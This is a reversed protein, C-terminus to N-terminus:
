NINVQAIIRTSTELHKDMIQRVQVELQSTRTNRPPGIIDKSIAFSGTEELCLHLNTYTESRPLNNLYCQAYIM